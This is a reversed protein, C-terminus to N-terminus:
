AARTTKKAILAIVQWTAPSVEAQVLAPIIKALEPTTAAERHQDTVETRARAVLNAM